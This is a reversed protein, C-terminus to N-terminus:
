IDSELLTRTQDVAAKLGILTVTDGVQLTTKGDPITVTRDRKLLAVLCERPLGLLALPQNSVRANGVTVEVIVDGYESARLLPLVMPRSVLTSLTMAAADSLSLIEIGSKQFAEANKSDNVRAILRLEPYKARANQCVLLNTKDSQTAAVLASCWGAGVKALVADEAADGLVANLGMSVANRIQDPDRDVVTVSEGERSLQKALKLAIEDAGVILVKKPMVNLRRAIWGAGSGEILVTIIVTLFVLPGIVAGGQIGWAKLELSMLTAMSAAVIGRPGMWAIFGREAWTLDTGWTSLTVAVPRVVFMLLLVVIPAQWGLSVLSDLDMSAALLIFVLSLAMLTLDNKFQIITEEYPLKISGAILGAVAVAAIGSEHALAEAVSYALLASALVMLRVQESPLVRSRKLAFALGLAAALGVASGIALNSVLQWLGGLVGLNSATIYSFVAATLLVGVADVLVSEAELTTKLRHTLPLRKLIPAIVTPGTVSVIAGFLAAIKWPIGLLLHSVIAAGVFTVGAGVTILGLVSRSSHRLQRIDIVLAGEFVIIAVSISVLARLGIGYYEPHVLGLVEPGLVIGSALLLLIAPVAFRAAVIQAMVGTALVMATTLVLALAPHHAYLNALM